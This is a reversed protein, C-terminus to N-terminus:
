QPSSFSQATTAAREVPGSEGDLLQHATATPLTAFIMGQKAAHRRVGAMRKRDVDRRDNYEGTDMLRGTRPDIVQYTINM